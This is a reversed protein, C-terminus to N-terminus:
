KARGRRLVLLVLAGLLLILASMGILVAQLPRRSGETVGFPGIRALASSEEVAFATKWPASVVFVDDAQLGEVAGAVLHQVASVDIEEGGLTDPESLLFVSGGDTERPADDFPSTSTLPLAFHVRADVIGPISRLTMELAGATALLFRAREEDPTRVISGEELITEWGDIQRPPLGHARTISFSRSADGAPVSVRWGGMRGREKGASIGNIGLLAIIDDADNEELNHHIDVTCCGLLAALAVCSLLSGHRVPTEARSRM